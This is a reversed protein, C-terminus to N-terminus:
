GSSVVKGEETHWNPCKLQLHCFGLEFQSLDVPIKQRTCSFIRPSSVNHAEPVAQDLTKRQPRGGPEKRKNQAGGEM